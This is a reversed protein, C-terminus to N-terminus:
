DVTYLGSILTQNWDSIINDYLTTQVFDMSESGDRMAWAVLIPLVFLPVNTIVGFIGFAGVDSIKIKPM